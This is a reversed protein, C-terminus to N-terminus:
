FVSSVRVDNLRIPEDPHCLPHDPQHERAWALLKLMHQYEAEDILEGFWIVRLLNSDFAQGDMVMTVVLDEYADASIGVRLRDGGDTVFVMGDELSVLAPLWPGRAVRRYRYFGPTIQDIRRPTM